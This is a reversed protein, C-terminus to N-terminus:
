SFQSLHRSAPQYGPPFLASPHGPQLAQSFVRGLQALHEFIFFHGGPFLKIELAHQTELQWALINQYAVGQDAIGHLVTVPIDFPPTSEHFYDEVAQFDARLIPEFFDILEQHQLVEAPLGGLKELYGIFIDKPLQHKLPLAAPVSPAERGSVFLHKPAPLDAALLRKLLQYSLMAGMSHGYIAYPQSQVTSNIQNFLDDIVGAMTTLLPEKIRKGRGPLELPVIKIFDAVHSQFDRYSFASGGSFHLCYLLIESNM